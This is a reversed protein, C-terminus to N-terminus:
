NTNNYNLIIEDYYKIMVEIDIYWPMGPLHYNKQIEKRINYLIRLNKQSFDKSLNDFEKIINNNPDMNYSKILIDKIKNCNPIYGCMISYYGCGNKAVIKKSKRYKYDIFLDGNEPIDRPDFPNLGILLCDKIFYFNGTFSGHNYIIIKCKSFLDIKEKINFDEAWIIEFNYKNKLITELELENMLKRKIYNCEGVVSLNIDKRIRRSIYIRKNKEINSPIKFYRSITNFARDDYNLRMPKYHSVYLNSYLSKTKCFYLDNENINLYSFIDTVFTSLKDRILLKINKKEKRIDLYIFIHILTDIIFHAYNSYHLDAYFLNEEIYNFEELDNELHNKDYNFKDYILQHTYCHNHRYFLIIKKDRFFHCQSLDYVDMVNKCKFLFYDKNEFYINDNEVLDSLNDTQLFNKNLLAKDEINRLDIINMKLSDYFDINLNYKMSFNTIKIKTNHSYNIFGIRNRKSMKIFGNYNVYSDKINLEVYGKGDFFKVGLNKNDTNIKFKIQINYIENKYLYLPYKFIPFFGFSFLHKIEEDSNKEFSMILENNEFIIIPKCKSSLFYFNDEILDINKM